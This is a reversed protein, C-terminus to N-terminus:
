REPLEAVVADIVANFQAEDLMEPVVLEVRLVHLIEQQSQRTDKWVQWALQAASVLLAAVAVVMEAGSYQQLSAPTGRMLAAEVHMPLTPHIQSAMREAARRAIDHETPSM